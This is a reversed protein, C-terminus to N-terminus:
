NTPDRKKQNRSKNNDQPQFQFTIAIYEMGELLKGLKWSDGLESVINMVKEHDVFYKTDILVSEEEFKLISNKIYPVPCSKWIIPAYEKILKPDCLRQTSTEL